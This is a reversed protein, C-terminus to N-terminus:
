PPLFGYKALIAQGEPSAVFDLFGTADDARRSGAVLGGALRAVPADAPADRVALPAMAAADTRYVVALRAQGRTALAAVGAVDAGLVLRPQVADWVGIAQLYTRAYRGVPVVDPDGIAVKVGPALAPLSAFTDGGGAPGVLVITNTAIARRTSAIIWATQVLGDLAADEALIVADLPVRERVQRVLADTAAYTPDVVVGHVARYREALEPAAARLSATFGVAVHRPERACGAVLLACAVLAVLPSRV